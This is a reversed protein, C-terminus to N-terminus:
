MVGGLLRDRLRESRFLPNRNLPVDTFDTPLLRRMIRDELCRICLMGRESVYTEWLENTVMYYEGIAGTHVECDLCWWIKENLWDQHCKDCPCAEDQPDHPLSMAENILSLWLEKDEMPTVKCTDAVTTLTDNTVHRALTRLLACADEVM